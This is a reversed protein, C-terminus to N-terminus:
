LGSGIYLSLGSKSIAPHQDNSATNIVPGLNRPASWDTFQQASASPALLLALLAVVVPVELRTRSRARRMM